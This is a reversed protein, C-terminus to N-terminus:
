YLSKFTRKIFENFTIGPEWRGKLSNLGEHEIYAEDPTECNIVFSGKPQMFVTFVARSINEMSGDNLVAHPAAELLGGSLIQVIEGVQLIMIDPGMRVKSVEGKRNRVFLGVNPNSVEGESYIEGTLHNFYISPTM